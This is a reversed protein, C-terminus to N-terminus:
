KGYYASTTMLVATKTVEVHNESLDEIEKQVAISLFKIQKRAELSDIM